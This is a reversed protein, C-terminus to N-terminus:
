AAVGNRAPDATRVLRPHYQEVCNRGAAKAGYLAHDAQRLLIGLDCGPGSAHSLGVSITLHLPVDSEWFEIKEVAERFREAIRLAADRDTNALLAAFEEGGIRGFLDGPRLVEVAREAFARLVKDGTQHGHRDNIQKFHDLDFLLLAVPLNRGLAAKLRREGEGLFARRSAVGTLEDTSAARRQLSESREKTMSLQLFGGVIVLITPEIGMIAVWPTTLAQSAHPLTWIIAAAVRALLLSAHLILCAVMPYRSVLHEQRARWLERAAGLTYAANILSILSLRFSTSEFFPPFACAILWIAPGAAIWTPRLPRESFSGAAAWIVGYAGALLGFPLAISVLDPAHNRTMLLATALAAALDAGGWMVLARHARNQSWAFVLLMGVIAAIFTTVTMLTAPDFSM